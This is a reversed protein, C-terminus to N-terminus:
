HTDGEAPVLDWMKKNLEQLTPQQKVGDVAIRIIASFKVLTAPLDESMEALEVKKKHRDGDWTVKVNWVGNPYEAEENEDGKDGEFFQFFGDLRDTSRDNEVSCVVGPFCIHMDKFQILIAEPIEVVAGKIKNVILQRLKAQVQAATLPNSWGDTLPDQQNVFVEFPKNDM